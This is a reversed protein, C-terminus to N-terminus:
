QFGNRKPWLLGAPLLGGLPALGGYRERVLREARTWWALLSPMFHPGRGHGQEYKLRGMERASTDGLHPAFGM